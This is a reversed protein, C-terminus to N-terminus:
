MVTALEFTPQIIAIMITALIVGLLITIIPEVLKNMRRLSARHSMEFFGACKTMAEGLNGSEEGIRALESLLPDVFSVSQLSEWFTKGAMVNEGLIQLEKEAKQNDVVQVCLSIADSLRLGSVLLLSLSQIFRLNAGQRVLKFKLKVSSLAIGGKKSNVLLVTTVTLLMALITLLAFKDAFFGSVSLLVRTLWPLAVGSSAFIGSYGPLVMTVAVVIVGLMMATVAAPYVLAATLEDKAASRSAYFGGLKECVLQQLGAREGIAIYGCVFSPFAHTALMASSLSEGLIIRKHVDELVRGLNRGKSQAALMAVVSKIGLGGELLFAIKLCLMSIDKQSIKGYLRKGLLDAVDRQWFDSIPKRKQQSTVRPNLPM